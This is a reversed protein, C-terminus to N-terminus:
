HGVLPLYITRGSELSVNWAAVTEMHGYRDTAVAYFAMGHQDHLPSADLDISWGDSGDTDTGLIQWSSNEWQDDHWGFQM